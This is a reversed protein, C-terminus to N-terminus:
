GRLGRTWPRNAGAAGTSPEDLSLLGGHELLDLGSERRPPAAPKPPPAAQVVSAPAPGAAHREDVRRSPKTKTAKITSLDRAALEFDVEDPNQHRMPAPPAGTEVDVTRARVESLLWDRDPSAPMRELRDLMGRLQELRDRDNM